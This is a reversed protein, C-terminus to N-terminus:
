SIVALVDDQSIMRLRGVGNVMEVGRWPNFLVKAGLGYEPMRLMGKRTKPWAGIAKVIGVNNKAPKEPNRAQEQIIEPSLHLESPLAVGGPSEKEPPSVEILVQGTLPKLKM